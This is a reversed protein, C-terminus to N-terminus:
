GRLESSSQDIPITLSIQLDKNIEWIDKPSIIGSTILINVLNYLYEYKASELNQQDNRVNAINELTELVTIAGEQMGIRSVRLMESSSKLASKRTDIIELSHTLQRYLQKISRIVTQQITKQTAKALKINEQYKKNDYFRKGGNILPYSVSIEGEYSRAQMKESVSTTTGDQTKLTQYPYKSRNYYGNLSISPLYNSLIAKQLFQAQKIDSQAIKLTLSHDYTDKIWHKLNPITLSLIDPSDKLRKIKTFKSCGITDALLDKSDQINQKARIINAKIRKAQAQAELQQAKTMSGLKLHVTIDKLRQLTEKEEALLFQHNEIDLILNFYQNTVTLAINQLAQQYMLLDQTTKQNAQSYLYYSNMNFLEQSITLSGQDEEYYRIVDQKQDSAKPFITRTKNNSHELTLQPLLYSLAINRDNKNKLWTFKAEQLISSNQQAKNFADNLSLTYSYSSLTIMTMLIRLCNKAIM